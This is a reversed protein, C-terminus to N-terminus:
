LVSLCFTDTDRACCMCVFLTVPYPPLFFFSMHAVMLLWTAFAVWMVSRGIRDVAFGLFPSAGASVLYPLSVVSGAVQQSVGFRHQVLVSGFQIMIFVAIYFTVCIFFVLWLTLPFDKVDTLKPPPDDVGSLKVKRRKEAYKDMLSLLIAGVLSFVCCFAGVWLGAQVGGKEVIYPTVNLNLASGIRAFSLAIGFALALEKGKFWRATFASQSVGLSEGGQACARCTV